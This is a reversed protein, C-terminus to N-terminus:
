PAKCVFTAADDTSGGGRYAAVQPYPCLPRTRDVVGNTFHSAMMRDPVEGREVWQALTGTTDFRNPGEGGGCHAMGPFMFLRVSNASKASGVLKRVSEYYNVTNLPAILQDSWGHYMLLKGGRGFFEKLNPDIDNLVHHDQKDSLAVDSDFNLAHFDWDLCKFVVYRFFDLSIAFPQPGALGGWLKISDLFEAEPSYRIRPFCHVERDKAVGLEGVGDVRQQGAGFAVFAWRASSAVCCSFM